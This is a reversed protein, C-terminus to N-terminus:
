LKAPRDLGRPRGQLEMGAEDCAALVHAYLRCKIKGLATRAPGRGKARLALTIARAETFIAPPEPASDIVGEQLLAEADLRRRNLVIVDTHLQAPLKARMLALQFPSYVLGLDVGPVFFWGKGRSMLRVDVCLALMGGAACAHGTIAAM